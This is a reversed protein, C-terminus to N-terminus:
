FHKGRGRNNNGGRTDRALAVKKACDEVVRAKNVLESFRQIELPAVTSMINERLSGQYKICKWGEYSEPTGQCIRSFGSELFYKRYFTTQFLEWPIDTNQLQLLQFEGQWWYQAEEMLQYAAFEVFQTDSVHQTKLFAVITMLAGGLNNRVGERNRNGNKAPQGLKEMAQTIRAVSAQMSNALNTIAAM